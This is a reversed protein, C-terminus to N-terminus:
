HKKNWLALGGGRGRAAIIEPEILFYSFFAQKSITQQHFEAEKVKGGPLYGNYLEFGLLAIAITTFDFALINKAAIFKIPGTLSLAFFGLKVSNQVRGTDPNSQSSRDYKIEIGIWKPIYKGAGLVIGAKERTKKTGTIFRLQWCGILEEFSHKASTKRTEKEAQLLSEVVSSADPLDSKKATTVALQQLLSLDSPM